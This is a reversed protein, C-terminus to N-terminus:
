THSSEKWIHLDPDFNQGISDFPIIGYEELTKDLKSVILEIGDLIIRAKGKGDSDLTRHLDDLIPM